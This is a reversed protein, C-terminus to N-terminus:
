FVERVSQMGADLPHEAVLPKFGAFVPIAHFVGQAHEAAPSCKFVLDRIGQLCIILMLYPNIQEEHFKKGVEPLM